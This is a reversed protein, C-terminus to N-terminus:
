TTLSPLPRTISLDRRLTASLPVEKPTSKLGVTSRRRMMLSVPWFRASLTSALLSVTVLVVSLLGPGGGAVARPTVPAAYVLLSASGLVAVVSNSMSEVSSWVTIWDGAAEPTSTGM